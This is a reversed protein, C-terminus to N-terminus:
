ALFLESALATRAVVRGGKLVTREVPPAGLVELASAGKLLLLDAPLGEELGHRVGLALAARSGCMELCTAAAGASTMHCLQCVLTGIKLVDGDGSFTFLNQVNNTAYVANVGMAALRDIPAVGRRRNGGDSRAMMCVDSAPLAVVSVGLERLQEAAGKLEELALTSLHTMHGLLVRGQMRYKRVASLVCPLLSPRGELHYDLHLDVPLSHEAALAFVLAVNAEPDTDCYPASGVADCGRALARRMLAEQGPVGTIGEQAFVCVQISIVHKYVDRLALIADLSALGAVPDVEVHTRLLTTGFRVESRM